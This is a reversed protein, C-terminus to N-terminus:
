QDLAVEIDTEAPKEVAERVAQRAPQKPAIRALELKV